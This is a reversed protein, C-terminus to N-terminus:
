CEAFSGQLAKQDCAEQGGASEKFWRLAERLAVVRGIVVLVPSALGATRAAEATSGITTEVVLQKETGGASIFAAPWEEPYGLRLLQDRWLEATRQAM